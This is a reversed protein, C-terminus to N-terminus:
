CDLCHCCFVPWHPPHIEVLLERGGGPWGEPSCAQPPVHVGGPGAEQCFSRLYCFPMLLIRKWDDGQAPGKQELLKWALLSCPLQFSNKKSFSDCDSREGFVQCRSPLWSTQGGGGAAWPGTERLPWSVKATGQNSWTLWTAGLGTWWSSNSSRGM